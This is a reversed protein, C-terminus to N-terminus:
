ESLTFLFKLSKIKSGIHCNVWQQCFQLLNMGTQSDSSLNLIQDFTSFLLAHAWKITESSVLSCASNQACTECIVGGDEFSFNIYGKQDCLVVDTDCLVCAEFSPRIGSFAFSKLFYAATILAINGIEAKELSTLAASTLEFFRPEALGTQSIRETLECVCAAASMRQLDDRLKEHSCILKAEKVIDLNKGYANLVECVCYLELRGAFTNQPKRAGKAVARIQSGDSALMTLILDSEGLKTKRLVIVETLYTSDSM